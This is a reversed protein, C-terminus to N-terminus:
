DGEGGPRRDGAERLWAQATEQDLIDALLEDPNEDDAVLLVHARDRRMALVPAQRELDPHAGSTLVADTMPLFRDPLSLLGDVPRSGVAVHVTGTVRLPPISLQARVPRKPIRMDERAAADLGSAVMVLIEDVRLHAAPAGLTAHPDTYESITAHEVTLYAGSLQNLIDAVRTFRTALRGSVRYAATYVDVRIDRIDDAGEMGWAM